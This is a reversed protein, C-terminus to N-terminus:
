TQTRRPRKARKGRARALNEKLRFRTMAQILRVAVPEGYPFQITGKSTKYRALRKSFRRRLAESAAFLSYHDKFAAFYVLAGEQHYAPIGYGIREEAEPAASRIARRVSQLIRRTSPPFRAMYAGVDGSSAMRAM